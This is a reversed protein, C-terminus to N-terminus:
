ILFAEIDLVLRLALRQGGHGSSPFSAIPLISSSASSTEPSSPTPLPHPPWLHALSYISGLAKKGTPMKQRSIHQLDHGETVGVDLKGPEVTATESKPAAVAEYFDSEDSSASKGRHWCCNSSVKPCVCSSLINGMPDQCAQGSRGSGEIFSFHHQGLLWAVSAPM